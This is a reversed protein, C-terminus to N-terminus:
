KILKKVAAQDIIKDAKEGLIKVCVAMVLDAAESKIELLTKDKEARINEKEQTIIKGIDQKAQAILLNKKDEGVQKAAEIIRSAEQRAQTVIAAQEVKAEELRAAIERAELLSKEIKASREGMIKTLPKFVLWFLVAFVLGFNIMQAILLKIDLHFIDILSEM